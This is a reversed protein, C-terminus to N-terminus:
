LSSTSTCAMVTRVPELQTTMPFYACIVTVIFAMCACSFVNDNVVVFGVIVLLLNWQQLQLLLKVYSFLVQNDLSSNM